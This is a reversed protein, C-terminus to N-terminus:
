ESTEDKEMNLVQVRKLAYKKAEEFNDFREVTYDYDIGWYPICFALASKLDPLANSVEYHYTVCQFYNDLEEIVVAEINNKTYYIYKEELKPPSVIEIFTEKNKNYDDIFVDLLSGKYDDKYKPKYFIVLTKIDDLKILGIKQCAYENDILRYEILGNASLKKLKRKKIQKIELLKSTEIINEGYCYYIDNFAIAYKKNSPFDIFLCITAVVFGVGYIIFMVLDYKEKNLIYLTLRIVFNFLFIFQLLFSSINGKSIMNKKM